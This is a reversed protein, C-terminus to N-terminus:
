DGAWPTGKKYTAVSRAISPASGIEIAAQSAKLNSFGLRKLHKDTAKVEEKGGHVHVWDGSIRKVSIDHKALEHSIFEFEMDRDKKEQALRAQLKDYAKGENQAPALNAKQWGRRWAKLLPLSSGVKNDSNNTIMKMLNSDLYPAAKIGSAYAAMGLNEAEQSKSKTKGENLLFEKFTM